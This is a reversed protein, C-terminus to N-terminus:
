ETLRVAPVVESRLIDALASGPGVSPLQDALFAAPIEQKRSVTGVAPQKGGAPAAAPGCPPDRGASRGRVLKDRLRRGRGAGAAGLVM